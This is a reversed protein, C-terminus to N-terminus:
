PRIGSRQRNLEAALAIGYAEMCADFVQKCRQLEKLAHDEQMKAKESLFLRLWQRLRCGIWEWQVDNHLRHAALVLFLLERVTLMRDELLHDMMWEQVKLEELADLPRKLKEEYRELDELLLHVIDEMSYPDHMDLLYPPLSHM